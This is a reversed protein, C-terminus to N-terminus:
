CSSYNNENKFAALRQLNNMPHSNAGRRYSPPIYPSSDDIIIDPNDIIINSSEDSLDGTCSCVCTCGSISEDVSPISQLMSQMVCSNSDMLSSPDLVMFNERYTINRPPLYRM